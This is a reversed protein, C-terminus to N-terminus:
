MKWGFCKSSLFYSYFYRAIVHNIKELLREFSYNDLFSIEYPIAITTNEVFKLLHRLNETVTIVTNKLMFTHFQAHGKPFRRKIM